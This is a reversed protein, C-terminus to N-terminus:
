PEDENVILDNRKRLWQYRHLEKLSRYLSREIQGEYRRFRSLINGSTFDEMAISGLSRLTEVPEPFEPVDPQPEEMKDIMKKDSWVKHSYIKHSGDPKTGTLKFEFLKENCVSTKSFNSDMLVGYLENEMRGSRKLKWFSSIIRDALMVELQGVPSLDDLLVRRFSDFESPDEGPIVVEVARLGHTLANKSSISKGVETGPGTSKLANRQNAALQKESITM